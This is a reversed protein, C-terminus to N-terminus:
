FEGHITGLTFYKWEPNRGHMAVLTLSVSFSCNIPIGVQETFEVGCIMKWGLFMCNRSHIAKRKEQIRCSEEKLDSNFLISRIGWEREGKTPSQILWEQRERFVGRFHFSEKDKLHTFQIKLSESDLKAWSANSIDVRKIYNHLYCSGCSILQILKVVAMKKRPQQSATQNYFRICLDYIM